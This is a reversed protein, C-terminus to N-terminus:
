VGFGRHNEVLYSGWSWGRADRVGDGDDVITAFATLGESNKKGSVQVGLVVCNPM